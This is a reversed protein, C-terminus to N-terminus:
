FAFEMLAADRTDEALMEFSVQDCLLPEHFIHWGVWLFLWKFLVARLTDKNELKDKWETM